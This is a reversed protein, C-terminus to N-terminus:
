ESVPYGFRKLNGRCIAEITDFNEYRNTHSVDGISGVKEWFPHNDADPVELECFELIKLIEERPNALIDEYRVEYFPPIQAQISALFSMADDWLHATTRIDDLGFEESYQKLKPFRPYPVFYEGEPLDHKIHQRYRDQQATDRRYLKLLSNATMRADRVIHVYRGEPFLDCVAPLYPFVGLLKCFFRHDGGFCWLAKRIVDRFAAVQEPTLDATTRPLHELTLGTRFLDGWFAVGDNASTASVMVSDGIYREGYVNLKLKRRIAEAGCFCSRFANMTNTFYAMRDHLCLIDQLMTTGSRPMGFLFVPRDIEIGGLDVKLIRREVWQLFRRTSAPPTTPIGFQRKFQPGLLVRSQWNPYTVKLSM